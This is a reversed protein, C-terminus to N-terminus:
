SRSSPPAKPWWRWCAIAAATSASSAADRRSRAACSGQASRSGTKWRMRKRRCNRKLSRSRGASGAPMPRRRCSWSFDWSRSGSWITARAGRWCRTRRWRSTRLLPFRLTSIASRKQLRDFTRGANFLHTRLRLGDKAQLTQGAQETEQVVQPMLELVSRLYEGCNGFDAGATSEIEKLFAEAQAKFLNSASQVRSREENWETHPTDPSPPAANDALARMAIVTRLHGNLVTEYEIQRSYTKEVRYAVVLGAAMVLMQLTCLGVYLLRLNQRNRALTPRPSKKRLIM